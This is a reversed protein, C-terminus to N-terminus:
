SIIPERDLYVADFRFGKLKAALVRDLFRQSVFYAFNSNPLVFLDNDGVKDPIFCWRKVAYVKNDVNSRGLVSHELDLCDWDLRTQCVVMYFTEGPADDLIVPYLLAHREWIDHLVEAARPSILNHPASSPADGIKRPKRLKPGEGLYQTLVPTQWNGLSPLPDGLRPDFWRLQREHSESTGGYEAYKGGGWWNYHTNKMELGM